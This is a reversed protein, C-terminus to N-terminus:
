EDAAAATRIEARADRRARKRRSRDVVKRCGKRKGGKMTCCGWHCELKDRRTHGYARM